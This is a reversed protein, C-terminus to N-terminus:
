KINYTYFHWMSKSIPLSAYLKQAPENDLATVWQLRAAGKQAAFKKCHEILQKAIGNRRSKPETYLDNLVAVKQIITSAYSFYVTAFGVAVSNQRFIFLCGLDSDEGFKSFFQENNSDSTEPVNYFEQYRRILPLVEQLNRDTVAEIM